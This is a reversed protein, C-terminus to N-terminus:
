LVPTGRRLSGLVLSYCGVVDALISAAAVGPARSGWQGAARAVVGAYPLAAALPRPSRRVVAAACGVVALDFAATRPSLFVRAFFLEGRLEPVQRAIDPFYRRRRHEAVFGWPGRSFVVHNVIAGACFATTGGARRVKWGFLVDEAMHAPGITPRLWEEFGGARDFARRTVFLNATEFLGGRRAASVSRDFPGM